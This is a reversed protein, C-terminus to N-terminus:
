QGESGARAFSKAEDGMGSAAPDRVLPTTKAIVFQPRKRIELFIRGIYEGVIGTALLQVGGVILGTVMLSLWGEPAQGGTLHQIVLAIALVAGLGALVFGGMTALRLPTISSITSMKLLLSISRRLTYGSQGDTRVHHQVKVTGINSTVALLLGDLYVSPGSYRVVEDKVESRMAKFPSLYLGPPKDILLVALADNLASGMRKWLAHHRSGFDTYCIDRGSDICAVLLRIDAPSHQLDDDMCVIIDGRAQNLGAMIANHQGVNRRLNVGVLSPHERALAEIVEWSNDPGADHVLILEHREHAMHKTVESVLRPLLPASRYVPIVISVRPLAGSATGDM